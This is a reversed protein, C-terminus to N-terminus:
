STHNEVLNFSPTILLQLISRIIAIVGLNVRLSLGIKNRQITKLPIFDSLRLRFHKQM